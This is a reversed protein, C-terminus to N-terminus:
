LACIIFTEHMHLMAWHKPIDKNHSNIVGILIFDVRPKLIRALKKISEKPCDFM